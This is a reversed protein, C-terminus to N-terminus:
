RLAATIGGIQGPQMVRKKGILEEEDYYARELPTSKWEGGGM